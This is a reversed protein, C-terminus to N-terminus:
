PRHRHPMQAAGFTTDCQPCWWIPHDRTLELIALETGWLDWARRWRFYAAMMRMEQMTRLGSVYVTEM